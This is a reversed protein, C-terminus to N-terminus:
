TMVDKMDLIPLYLSLMLTGIILGLSLLLMPELWAALAHRYRESRQELLQRAQALVEDMHGTHEAIRLLHVIEIAFLPRSGSRCSCLVDSLATGTALASQLKHMLADLPTHSPTIPQWAQHRNLQLQEVLAIALQHRYLTAVIPVHAIARVLRASHRWHWGASLGGIITVYPWISATLISTLQILGQTLWPLPHGSQAYLQAFRPVVMTMMVGLTGISAIVLTLPYRLQQRCQRQWQHRQQQRAVLQSIGLSLESNHEAATLLAQEIPPLSAYPSRMVAEAFRHGQSLAQQVNQTLLSASPATVTHKIISLAQPLAIGAALLQQLQHLWQTLTVASCCPTTICFFRRVSIPTIGQQTLCRHAQSRDSAALLGRQRHGPADIGQWRWYRRKTFSM